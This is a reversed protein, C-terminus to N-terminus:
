EKGNEMIERIIRRARNNASHVYYEPISHNSEKCRQILWEACHAGTKIVFNRWNIMALSAKVDEQTVSPDDFNYLDNDFSIVDPIGIKEVMEVFQEYSRVIIWNSPPIKVMEHLFCNEDWLFTRNPHRENDLYLYKKPKEEVFKNLDKDNWFTSNYYSKYNTGKRWKDTKGAM